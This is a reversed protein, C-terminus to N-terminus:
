KNMSRYLTRMRYGVIYCFGAVHRKRNVDIGKTLVQLVAMTFPYVLNRNIGSHTAGVAIAALAM